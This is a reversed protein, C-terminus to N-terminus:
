RKEEAATRQKAANQWWEIWADIAKTRQDPTAKDPVAFPHGTIKELLGMVEKQVVADKNKLGHKILHPVAERGIKVITDSVITRTKDDKALRAVLVAILAEPSAKKTKPAELAKAARAKLDLLRKKSEPGGLAASEKVLADVAQVVNKHQKADLLGQVAQISGQWWRASAGPIEKRANACLALAAAHEKLNLHCALLAAATQADKPSAAHLAKYLAGAAPWDELAILVPGLAIKFQAVINAREPKKGFREIAYTLVPRARAHDKKAV